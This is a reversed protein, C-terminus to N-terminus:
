RNDQALCKLVAEQSLDPLYWPAGLRVPFRSNKGPEMRACPQSHVFVLSGLENVGFIIAIFSEEGCM